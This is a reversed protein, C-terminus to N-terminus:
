TKIPSIRVSCFTGNGYGRLVLGTTLPFETVARFGAGVWGVVDFISSKHEIHEKFSVKIEPLNM